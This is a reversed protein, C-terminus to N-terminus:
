LRLSPNFPFHPFGAAPSPHGPGVALLFTSTWWYYLLTSKYHLWTASSQNTWIWVRGPGILACSQSSPRAHALAPFLPRSTWSLTPRYNADVASPEQTSGRDSGHGDPAPMHRVLVREQIGDDAFELPLTLKFGDCLEHLLCGWQTTKKKKQKKKKFSLCSLWTRFTAEDLILDHRRKKNRQKRHLNM